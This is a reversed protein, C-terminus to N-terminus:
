SGGRDMRQQWSCFSVMNDTKNEVLGEDGRAAVQGSLRAGENDGLEATESRVSFGSSIRKALLLKVVAEHGYGAAKSLPTDGEGGEDDKFNRDIGDKALLLEVVAVYGNQAAFILALKL